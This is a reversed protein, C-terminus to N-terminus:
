KTSCPYKMLRKQNNQINLNVLLLEGRSNKFTIDIFHSGQITTSNWVELQEQVIYRRLEQHNVPAKGRGPGPGDSGQDTNSERERM